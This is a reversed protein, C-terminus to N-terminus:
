AKVSVIPIGHKLSERCNLHYIRERYYEGAGWEGKIEDFISRNVKHDGNCLPCLASSDLNFTDYHEDSDDLSLYPFKKLVLGIIHKRKEEPDEPLVVELVNNQDSGELVEYDQEEDKSKIILEPDPRAKFTIPKFGSAEISEEDDHDLSCLPCTRKPDCSTKDTIGYYDFNESSFEKYLNSYQGLTKLKSFANGNTIKLPVHSQDNGSFITKLTVQDIINQIQENTLKSIENANCNVCKIKDIGVGNEGFLKHIKKARLTKIRLAVPTVGALHELMEKYIQTRATKDTVETEHRIEVVKQQNRSTKKIKESKKSVMQDNGSFVTLNNEASFLVKLFATERLLKEKNRRRIGDSVSKKYADNLFTDIKRDVLSKQDNM